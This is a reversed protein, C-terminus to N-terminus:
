KGAGGAPRTEAPLTRRFFAKLTLTEAGRQIVFDAADGWRKESMLQSMTGKEVLPTGDMSVLLDGVKFGAAAAVSDKQVNIVPWHEGDKREPTSLGLSPFASHEERAVGWLFNAYSARVAPREGKDGVVPIPILSAMKGDFWLRAQREAGLGYSVHGSGILVVMIADPTGAQRLTEVANKGMTADWTCQARFMGDWQEESMSPAHMSDGGTFYAKFLRRHEANDTDIRAPIHAAEEPTLDAFGKKRVAQVVERPTNVAFMRIKRDRAFVFIDRYYLWHYAWNRYWRSDHLFAEESLQGASWKDLWPQEPYPYMELGILVPRGARHLEEIIRRQVAHFEVSTHSEGVFLVRVGSLRAALERPTIQEGTATDTVADLMLTAQKDRRAPDGIPLNLAPDDAHAAAGALGLLVLLVAPRLLRGPTRRNRQTM